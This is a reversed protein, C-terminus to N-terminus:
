YIVNDVSLFYLLDMSWQVSNVCSMYFCLATGEPWVSLLAGKAEGVTDTPDCEITVTLGDRNAFLFRLTIKNPDFKYPPRSKKSNSVIVSKKDEGVSGDTGETAAEDDKENDGSVGIEPSMNGESSSPMASTTSTAAETLTEGGDSGVVDVPNQDM